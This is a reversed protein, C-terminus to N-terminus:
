CSKSHSTTINSNDETSLVEQQLSFQVQVGVTCPDGQKQKM